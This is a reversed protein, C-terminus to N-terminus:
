FTFRAGLQLQRSTPLGLLYSFPQRFNSARSNGVYYNGFNARNTINYFEAFLGLNMRESFKVTKTVRTDLDFTPTGRLANIGVQQGSTPGNPCGCTPSLSPNGSKSPDIWFDTNSGDGNLDQGQTATYPRSSAAQLIPSVQFGKPLNIVASLVVRHREDIAAPGWESNIFPQDQNGAAKPAQGGGLAGAIIGGFARAWMATYSAQLSVRSGHYIIQTAIEDYKSLNNTEYMTVAGLYDPTNPTQGQGAFASALLGSYRRRGWPVHKDADTPDWAGEIPNIERSRMEHQGLVHTYDSSITIRSGIARTYGVHEQINYPNQVLPSLITVAANTNVPLDTLPTTPFFPLPSVNYVYNPLQGAGIGTNVTSQAIDLVPESVQYARFGSEMLFKDWFLGAGLRVVNKGNGGIDWAVGFRPSFNNIPTQPPHTGTPEYVDPIQAVIKHLAEYARNNGIITQNFSNIALDYRLGLNLTVRPTIKWDDQAYLGVDKMGLIRSDGPGGRQWQCGCTSATGQGISSVIGPTQFGQKYPGCHTADVAKNAGFATTCSGPTALWQAGSNVITSPNDFFRIRGTEDGLLIGMGMEPFWAFDVGFRLSHKGMQHAIDDKIEWRKEFFEQDTSPGTRGIEISPFTLNQLPWQSPSLTTPMTQKTDYYSRQVTFNNVTNNGIIWTEGGVVSYLLSGNLDFSSTPSTDPHPPNTSNVAVFQDDFAYQNQQAYRLFLSHHESIKYDTKVTLLFDHLPQPVFQSPVLLLNPLARKLILAENYVATPFVQTYTQYTREAAGFIFLRDKIIPGGISGGFQERNYASKPLNGVKNFYETTTMADNRGFGFATGHFQNTGSKTVVEVVGNNSRGYAASFAHALLKFEQIGEITFNMMPGGVIDDRNEAGDVQAVINRGGGGGLSIGGGFTLKTSNLIPAPRAEPILTVLGMFTRNLMPLDQVESTQISGSVTSQTTDVTVASEGSVEVAQSQSAVGLQFDVTITSDAALTIGKKLTTTFGTMETKLDYEGPQLAAFSYLGDSNTVTTRSLGTGTSTSTVTASTIVSGTSDVVRGILSGSAQGFATVSALLCVIAALWVRRM